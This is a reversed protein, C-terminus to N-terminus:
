WNSPEEGSALTNRSVIKGSYAADSWNTTNQYDSIQADPVYIKLDTNATPFANANILASPTTARLIVVKLAPCNYFSYNYITKLNDPLEVKELLTCGNFAQGTNTSGLITDAASEPWKVWRLSTCNQFASNGITQLGTPLTLTTLGTYQFANGGISTLTSPLVVSSLATCRYFAYPAIETINEASFSIGGAVGPGAIVTTGKILVKGSLITRFVTDESDVYFTLNQSDTFVSAGITIAASIGPAFYVSELNPCGTFASDGISTLTGSLNVRTLSSCGGFAAYGITAGPAAPSWDLFVLATGYFAYIGITQLVAPLEITGLSGCSQFASEAITALGLPLTVSELSPCENFAYMGIAVGAEISSWELSTLSLCKQFAYSGLTKLTAPLVLSVLKDKTVRANVHGVNSDPIFAGTCGSLDLAVYKGNLATYLKGLPDVGEKLDTEVNLDRLVVRYPTKRTNDATAVLWASLDEVTTFTPIDYFDDPEFADAAPTTLGDYIHIIASKRATRPFSSGGSLSVELGLRYYGAGLSQIGAKRLNTGDTEAGTLLDLEVVNGGSVPTLVLRANEADVPFRIDYDLTGAGSEVKARVAVNVVTIDGAKVTLEASGQVVSDTALNVAEDSTAYGKVELSWTGPELEVEASLSHVPAPNVDAKDQATFQLAYYLDALVGTAPLLTRAQPGALRIRATGMDLAPHEPMNAGGDHLPSECGVLLFLVGFLSFLPKRKHTKM